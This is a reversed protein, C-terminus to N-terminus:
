KEGEMLNKDIAEKLAKLGEEVTTNFLKTGAINMHGGGGLAEMIVQVNVDGLSRGSIYLDNEIKVFVFSAQIGTINLLEDAAQAALVTDEIYPPCVAIAINNEVTASKIIESRQIYTNLDDSFLKKVDVTDAGLRRLFSAAEFTRVGTKFYFNKTDVCIGALLSEAELQKLKPKDIIYQIIETILESTSSAYPEMYSLIANEIYDASKRHHDIIVVRKIEKVLEENLIYGKNHVDVIILLSNEDMRAKCAESNIFVDEYDPDKKFKELLQKVGSNPPELIIYSEKKLNRIISNLGVAAGLCDVDPNKHGMIFVTSSENILDRLAHAIVRARVRTRKEMEKTKGGFFLLREGYKVVVQDGGRGLALEKASNAFNHNELPSNGGRGVGISLTVSLKNGMSIERIVDLIDFKKKIEEELYKEQVSLVYKNSAYKRVLANIGQAYNNINREIEAVLLPRQGDDVTKLIDDLNDVEILMVSERNDYIKKAETIDYFYFLIIDDKDNKNDSVHVISTYVHYYREKINIYEFHNDKSETIASIELGKIITSISKGLIQEQKLISSMNQNYWVINGQSGTIILPFPLNILTNRTATDLKMSFDEIFKQWEDKKAESSKINYVVLVAFLMLVVIGEFNHGYYFLLATLLAIIIMYVRNSPSFYNYRNNDM